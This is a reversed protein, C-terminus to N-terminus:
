APKSIYSIALVGLGGALGAVYVPAVGAIAGAIMVLGALCCLAKEVTRM